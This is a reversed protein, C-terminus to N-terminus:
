RKTAPESNLLNFFEDCDDSDNDDIDASELDEQHDRGKKHHARMVKYAIDYESLDSDRFMPGYSKSCLRGIVLTKQPDHRATCQQVRALLVDVAANSSSVVLVPKINEHTMLEYILEAATQTKGTGPPGALLGIGKLQRAWVVSERQGLNLIDKPERLSTSIDTQVDRCGRITPDHLIYKIIEEVTFHSSKQHCVMEMQRELSDREMPEITCAIFDLNLQIELPSSSSQRLKVELKRGSRGELKGKLTPFSGDNPTIKVEKGPYFEKVGVMSESLRVIIRQGTKNGRYPEMAGPYSVRTVRQNEALVQKLLSHMMDMYAAKDERPHSSEIQHVRDKWAMSSAMLEVRKTNREIRSLENTYVPLESSAFAPPEESHQLVTYDGIYMIQQTKWATTYSGDAWEQWCRCSERLCDVIASPWEESSALKILYDRDNGLMKQRKSLEQARGLNVSDSTPSAILENWVRYGDGFDRAADSQIRITDRANLDKETVVAHQSGEKHEGEWRIVYRMLHSEANNVTGPWQALIHQINYYDQSVCINEAQPASPPGWRSHWKGLTPSYRHWTGKLQAYSTFQEVDVIVWTNPPLKASKNSFRQVHNTSIGLMQLPARSFAECKLGTWKSLRSVTDGAVTCYVVTCYEANSHDSLESNRGKLSAHHPLLVYHDVIDEDTLQLVGTTSNGSVINSHMTVVKPNQLSDVLETVVGLHDRIYTILQAHDGTCYATSVSEHPQYGDPYYQALLMDCQNSVRHNRQAESETDCSRTLDLMVATVHHPVVSVDLEDDVIGPEPELTATWSHLGSEVWDQVGDARKVLREPAELDGQLTRYRRVRGKAVKIWASTENNGSCDQLMYADPVVSMVRFPGHWRYALKNNLGKSVWPLHVLVETGVPFSEAQTLTDM